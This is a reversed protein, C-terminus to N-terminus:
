KQVHEEMIIVVGHKREKLGHQKGTASHQMAIMHNARHAERVLVDKLQVATSNNLSAGVLKGTGIDLKATLFTAPPLYWRCHKLRFLKNM